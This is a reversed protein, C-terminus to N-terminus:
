KSLEKELEEIRKAMKTNDKQYVHEMFKCGIFIGLIIGALIGIIFQMDITTM